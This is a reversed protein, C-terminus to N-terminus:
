LWMQFLNGMFLSLKAFYKSQLGSRQEILKLKHKQNCFLSMQKVGSTNHTNLHLEVNMWNKALSLDCTFTCIHNITQKARPRNSEICTKCETSLTKELFLVRQKTSNYFEYYFFGKKEGLIFSQIWKIIDDNQFIIIGFFPHISYPLWIFLKFSFFISNIHIFSLIERKSLVNM